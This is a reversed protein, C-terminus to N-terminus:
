DKEFSKQLKTINNKATKLREQIEAALKLAQAYKQEAEDIDVEESAFWDIIDVLEQQLEATTKKM